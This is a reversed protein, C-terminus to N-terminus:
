GGVISGHRLGWAADLSPIIDAGTRQTIWKSHCSKGM